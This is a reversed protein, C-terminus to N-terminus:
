GYWVWDGLLIAWELCSLMLSRRMSKGLWRGEIVLFKRPGWRPFLLRRLGLIERGFLTKSSNWCLQPMSAYRLALIVDTPTPFIKTNPSKTNNKERRSTSRLVQTMDLM